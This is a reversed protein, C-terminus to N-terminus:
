SPLSIEFNNAKPLNPNNHAYSTWFALWIVQYISQIAMGLGKWRLAGGRLFLKQLPLSLAISSVM